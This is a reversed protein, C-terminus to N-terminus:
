PYDPPEISVTTEGIFEFEGDTLIEAILDLKERPSWGHFSVVLQVETDFEM